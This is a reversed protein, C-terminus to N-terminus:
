VIAGFMSVIDAVAIWMASVFVFAATIGPNVTGCCAVVFSTVCSVHVLVFLPKVRGAFLM